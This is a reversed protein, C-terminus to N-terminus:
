SRDKELRQYPNISHGPLSKSDWGHLFRLHHRLCDVRGSGYCSDLLLDDICGHFQVSDLHQPTRLFPRCSPRTCTTGSCRRRQHHTHPLLFRESGRWHHGARINRDSALDAKVRLELYLPRGVYYFAFYTGWFILFMGLSFLVYPIEKLAGWEVLPGTRRPPLRPRTFMNIVSLTGIMVFGLVRITWPFGIKPLLQQVIAPFVM